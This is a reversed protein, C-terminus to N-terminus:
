PLYFHLEWWSVLILGRLEICEPERCCFSLVRRPPMRGQMFLRCWINSVTDCCSDSTTSWLFRILFVRRACIFSGVGVQDESMRELRLNAQFATLIQGKSTSIVSLAVVKSTRPMLSM